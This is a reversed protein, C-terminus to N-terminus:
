GGIVGRAIEEVRERLAEPEVVRCRGGFGVVWRAIEDLHSLTVRYELGGGVLKQIEEGRHHEASELLPALGDDFRLVVHHRKRGRYIGWSHELYTEVDFDDPPVFHHDGPRVAAIRDLRFTRPEDHLHCRGALYWADARHFLRYPDIRRWRRKSRSLSTYQVEVDRCETIAEELQAVVQDDVEGTRDTGALVLAEPTETAAATAADLKARLTDLPRRLKRSRELVPNDLALRLVAREELTLALPPLRGEDLLRYGYENRVIPVRESLSALDRYATRESIEFHSVIEQLSKSRRGGLLHVLELLRTPRDQAM